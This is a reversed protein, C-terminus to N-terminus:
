RLIVNDSVAAISDGDQLVVTDGHRYERVFGAVRLKFTPRNEAASLATYSGLMLGGSGVRYEVNRALQVDGQKLTVRMGENDRIADDTSYRVGGRVKVGAATEEGNEKKAANVARKMKIYLVATLVGFLVVAASLAIVAILEGSLSSILM